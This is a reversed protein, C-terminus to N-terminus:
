LKTQPPCYACPLLALAYSFSCQESIAVALDPCSHCHNMVPDSLLNFLGEVMLSYYRENCMTVFGMQVQM